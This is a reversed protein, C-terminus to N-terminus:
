GTGYNKQVIGHTQLGSLLHKWMTEVDNVRLRVYQKWLYFVNQTRM